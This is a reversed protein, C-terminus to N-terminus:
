GPAHKKARARDRESYLCGCYKQRYLNMARSMDRSEGYGPRFDRYLFPVGIKRSVLSGAEKLLDHNQYPSLLLTTTFSDFGHKKAYSATKHLRLEFCYLCRMDGKKYIIDFFNEIDYSEDYVMGLERELAYLRMTTIRRDHEAFPHINPNYFFGTVDYGEKLLEKHVYTTCPACCCHLLVKNGSKGRSSM